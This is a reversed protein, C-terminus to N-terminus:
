KLIFLISVNIDECIVKGGSIGKIMNAEIITPAGNTSLLVENSFWVKSTSKM